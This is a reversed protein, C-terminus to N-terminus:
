NGNEMEVIKNAIKELVSTTKDHAKQNKTTYTDLFTNIERITKKIEENDKRADESRKVLGLILLFVFVVAIWLLIMLITM